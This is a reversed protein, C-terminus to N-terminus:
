PEVITRLGELHMPPWPGYASGHLMENLDLTWEWAIYALMGRIEADIAAQMAPGIRMM